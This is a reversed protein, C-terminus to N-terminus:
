TPPDQGTSDLAGVVGGVVSALSTGLPSDAGPITEGLEAALAMAEAEGARGGSLAAQRRAAAQQERQKPDAPADGLRLVGDVTDLADGVLPATEEALNAWTDVSANSRAASEIIETDSKGRARLEEYTPMDGRGRLLTAVAGVLPDGEERLQRRLRNRADVAWRAIEAPEKGTASLAQATRAIEQERPHYERLRQRAAALIRAETYDSVSRVQSLLQRVPATLADAAAEGTRSLLLETQTAASEGAALLQEALAVAQASIEDTQGDQSQAM